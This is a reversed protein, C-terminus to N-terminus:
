LCCRPIPAVGVLAAHVWCWRGTASTEYIMGRRESQTILGVWRVLLTMGWAEVTVVGYLWSISICSWNWNCALWNYVSMGTIFLSGERANLKLNIDGTQWSVSVGVRCNLSRKASLELPWFKRVRLVISHWNQGANDIFGVYNLRMKIM